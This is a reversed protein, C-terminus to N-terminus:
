SLSSIYQTIGDAHLDVLETMGAESLLYDVDGKNDQFLNETLVAPCNTDRVIAFNGTWYKCPPVFRNGKLNHRAAEDYLAQALLKSNSSANPSVWVSWGRADHWKGDSGGANNHISVLLCNRAGVAKCINNVRSVRTQLKVDWAEPTVLEADYGKQKLVQVLRNACDRSWAYERLRKDPSCKGATNSGHGNDILIKM